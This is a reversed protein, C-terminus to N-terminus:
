CDATGDDPPRSSLWQDPSQQMPVAPPPPQDPPAETPLPPNTPWVWQQGNIPIMPLPPGDSQAVIEGSETSATNAVNNMIWRQSSPDTPGFLVPPNALRHLELQLADDNAFPATSIMYDQPEVDGPTSDNPGAPGSQEQDATSDKQENSTPPEVAHESESAPSDQPIQQSEQQEQQELVNEVERPRLAVPGRSTLRIGLRDALFAVVAPTDPTTNGAFFEAAEQLAVQANQVHAAATRLTVEWFPTINASRLCCDFWDVDKSDYLLENFGYISFGIGPFAFDGPINALREQAETWTPPHLYNAPAEYNLAYVIPHSRILGLLTPTYRESLQIIFL